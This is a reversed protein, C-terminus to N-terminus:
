DRKTPRYRLLVTGNKFPKAELLQLEISSPLPSFLPQGSGLLVPNLVLQYEDIMGRQALDRVLRGSGFILCDGGKARKLNAITKADAAPEIITNEWDAKKLSQSFVIKESENLLTAFYHNAAKGAPTPWFSAFMQYTNKGFLYTSIDGRSQKVYETLEDSDRKAWGVGGDADCFMGDLSLNNFVLIKRM